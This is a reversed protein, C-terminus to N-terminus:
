TTELDRTQPGDGTEEAPDVSRYRGMSWSILVVGLPGLGYLLPFAKGFRVILIVLAALAFDPAPAQHRGQM